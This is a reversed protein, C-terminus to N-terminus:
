IGVKNRPTKVTSILWEEISPVEFAYEQPITITSVYRVGKAKETKPLAKKEPSNKWYAGLRYGVTSNCSAKGIYLTKGEENAFLYVGPLDTNPWYQDPWDTELDYPKSIILGEINPRPAFEYLKEIAGRVDEFM